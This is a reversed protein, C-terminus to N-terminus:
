GSWHLRAPMGARRQAIFNRDWWRVALARRSAGRSGRRAWGTARTTHWFWSANLTSPLYTRTWYLAQGLLLACNVSGTLEALVPYFQVYRQGLLALLGPEPGAGGGTGSTPFMRARPRDDGVM